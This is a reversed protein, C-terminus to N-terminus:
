GRSSVKRRLFSSISVASVSVLQVTFLSFDILGILTKRGLTILMPIGSKITWHAVWNTIYLGWQGALELVAGVATVIAVVTLGVNVAGANLLRRTQAKIDDAM